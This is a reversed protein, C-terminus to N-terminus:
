EDLPVSLSLIDLEFDDTEDCGAVTVTCTENEEGFNGTLLAPWILATQWIVTTNTGLSPIIIKGTQLIAPFLGNDDSDCDIDIKSFLNLGSRFDGTVEIRILVPYLPIWHSKPFDDRLVDIDCDQGIALNVAGTLTLCLSICFMIVIIRKM